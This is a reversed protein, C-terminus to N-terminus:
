NFILSIPLMISPVYYMNIMHDTLSTSNLLCLGQLFRGLVRRPPNGARLLLYTIVQLYKEFGYLHSQYKKSDIKFPRRSFAYNQGVIKGFFYPLYLSPRLLLLSLCFVAVALPRLKLIKAMKKVGFTLYEPRKEQTIDSIKQNHQNPLFGIATYSLSELLCHKCPVNLSPLLSRNSLSCIPILSGNGTVLKGNVEYPYPVKPM